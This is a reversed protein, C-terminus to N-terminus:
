EKKEKIFKIADLIDELFDKYPRDAAEVFSILSV